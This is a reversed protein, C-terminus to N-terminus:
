PEASAPDPPTESFWNVVELGPVRSFEAVNRTVLACGHAMATAAILTDHPGIPRGAAELSARLAAARRACVENFDLHVLTGLLLELAERRPKAAEPPLRELGYRLEYAVISPVALQSPRCAQMAQVVAPEGRFFYSITNTDLALM